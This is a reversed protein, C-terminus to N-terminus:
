WRAFEYHDLINQDKTVLISNELAANAVIMRDFPDRKWSISLAKNIIDNFNKDCVDLAIRNYLDSIIEDPKVKIRKIEYMYQLELRVMASIVIMNDNIIKSINKNLKSHNGAYLWIVIHTDLYIM